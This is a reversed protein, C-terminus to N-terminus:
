VAEVAESLDCGVHEPVGAGQTRASGLRLHAFTEAVVDRDAEALDLRDLVVAVLAHANRNVEALLAPMGASRVEGCPRQALRDLRRQGNRAEGGRVLARPQGVRIQQRAIDRVGVQQKRPVQADLFRDLPRLGAFGGRHAHVPADGVRFAGGYRGLLGV